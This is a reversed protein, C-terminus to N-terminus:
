MTVDYRAKLDSIGSHTEIEQIVKIPSYIKMIAETHNQGQGSPLSVEPCHRLIDVAEKHLIKEEKKPDAILCSGLKSSVLAWKGCLPIIMDDSVTVQADVARKISEAVREKVMKITVKGRSSNDYNIDYKTIGITLRGDTFAETLKLFQSSDQDTM